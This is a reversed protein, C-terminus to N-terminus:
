VIVLPLLVLVVLHRGPFRGPPQELARTGSQHPQLGEVDGYLLSAQFLSYQHSKAVHLCLKSFAGRVIPAQRRRLSGLQWACAAVNLFSLEYKYSFPRLRNAQASHYSKRRPAYAASNKIPDYYSPVGYLGSTSSTTVCSHSDFPGCLFTNQELSAREINVGTRISM